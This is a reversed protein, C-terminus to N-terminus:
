ALSKPPKRLKSMPVPNMGPSSTDRMKGLPAKYGTGYYDGMGFKRNSSHAEQSKKPNKIGKLPKM